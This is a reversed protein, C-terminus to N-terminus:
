PSMQCPPTLPPPQSAHCSLAIRIAGSSRIAAPRVTIKRAFM